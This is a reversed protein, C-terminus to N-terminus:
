EDGRLKARKAIYESESIEGARHRRELKELKRVDVPVKLRRANRFFLQVGHILVLGGAGLAIWGYNRQDEREFWDSASMPLSPHINLWIAGSAILVLGLGLAVYWYRDSKFKGM